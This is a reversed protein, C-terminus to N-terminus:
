SQESYFMFSLRIAAAEVFSTILYYATVESCFSRKGVFIPVWQMNVTYFFPINLVGCNGYKMQSYLSFIAM